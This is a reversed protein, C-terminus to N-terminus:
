FNALLHRNTMKAPRLDLFSRIRDRNERFLDAAVFASREAFPSVVREYDRQDIANAFGILLQECARADEAQLQSRGLPPLNLLEDTHRVLAGRYATDLTARHSQDFFTGEFGPPIPEVDRARRCLYTSDPRDLFVGGYSRRIPRGRGTGPCQKGGRRTREKAHVPRRGDQDAHAHRPHLSTVTTGRQALEEALQNGAAVQALKSRRYFQSATWSRELMVDDLDVPFQGASSVMVVRAGSPAAELLPLVLRLLLHGSLYNVQYTL